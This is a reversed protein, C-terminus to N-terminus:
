LAHGSLAIEAEATVWVPTQDNGRAYDVAGDRQILSRLYSVPSPAGRRHLRLPSDGAAILGAVGFATSQANSAAGPQDGFGGDRNQQSRIFDVARSRVGRFRRGALASLVAGTDDVDSQGGRADFNFGGDADQQRALWETARAPVRLGAARLALVEFATLNTQDGVSGNRGVLARLKARLRGFEAIEVDRVTSAALMTREIAGAGHESALTSHLYDFPDRGHGHVAGRPNLGGDNLAIVAWGTDM